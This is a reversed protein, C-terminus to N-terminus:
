WCFSYYYESNLSEICGLHCFKLCRQFSTRRNKFWSKLWTDDQRRIAFFIVLQSISIDMAVEFELFNLSYIPSWTYCIEFECMFRLEGM